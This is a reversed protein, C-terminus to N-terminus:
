NAPEWDPQRGGGSALLLPALAPRSILTSSGSCTAALRAPRPRDLTGSLEALAVGLFGVFCAFDLFLISNSLARSLITIDSAGSVASILLGHGPRYWARLRRTKRVSHGAARCSPTSDQERRRGAGRWNDVDSRPGCPDVCCGEKSAPCRGDQSIRPGLFRDVKCPPCLYVHLCLEQRAPRWSSGPYKCGITVSRVISDALRTQHLGLGSPRLWV